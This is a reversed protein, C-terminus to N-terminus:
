MKNQVKGIMSCYDARSRLEQIQVRRSIFINQSKIDRHLIKRDHIYQVARCLQVFYSLVTVESMLRGRQRNIKGHLDGGDCYEM